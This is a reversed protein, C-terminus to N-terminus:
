LSESSQTISKVGLKVSLYLLFWPGTFKYLICDSDSLKLSQTDRKDLCVCMKNQVPGIPQLRTFNSPGSISKSLSRAESGWNKSGQHYINSILWSWLAWYTYVPIGRLDSKCWLVSVIWIQTLCTGWELFTKVKANM